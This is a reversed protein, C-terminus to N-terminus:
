RLMMLERLSEPLYFTDNKDVYIVVSELKIDKKNYRVINTNPVIELKNKKNKVELVPIGDKENVTYKFDRFVETHKAFYTRTLSELSQNLNLSNRLYHNLQINNHHGMLRNPTPDYVALFVEEGTHGGTTFGFCTNQDLIGAVIKKLDSGYMRETDSLSSKNYDKCKLMTAYEEDSLSIGTLELVTQRLNGPDTDHLIDMLRDISIRVQSIPGFLQEKTLSSYNSCKRSGISIGSNGHDPVVVVVTEGNKKAFDFAVGCAKDFALMDTILSVADNAHAAWDIKSGEVMLVFGNENKSLKEIAKETMEAISPEEAPNRDIDYSMADDNFLAWMKNGSYNRFNSIDNRFVGYDESKLFNEMEETLFRVGGGIVVDIGNHVMQPAIWEYKGRNYSHSMCDAPTAHPFECTFVLGVSKNQAIRAAEWVTMLPLYALAPDMPVIDNEPDAVPYTSIYGPRSPYGTMYTSTTPASDGIPANSSYTLITGCIYPDIHLDTSEPHNYRQYWRAASVASLSTGDPILLIVNKIKSEQALINSTVFFCLLLLTSIKKM